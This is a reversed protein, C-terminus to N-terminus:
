VALKKKLLSLMYGEGYINFILEELEPVEKKLKSIHADVTRLSVRTNQWIHQRLWIRSLLREPHKAFAVLLNFHLPSLQIIKSKIRVTRDLPQVEIDGVQLTINKVEVQQRLRLISQIRYELQDLQFPKVLFQDAGAEFIRNEIAANMHTCIVIIGAGCIERFPHLGSQPFSEFSTVIVDPDFNELVALSEDLPLASAVEYKDALFSLLAKAFETDSDCVFVRKKV